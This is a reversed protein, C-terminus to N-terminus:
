KRYSNLDDAFVVETFDHANVAHRSSAFFLNWLPPGLATGQYVMDKLCFQHSAKDDVIVQASRPDLWSILVNFIDRHLGLLALSNLLKM